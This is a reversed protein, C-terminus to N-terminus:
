RRCNTITMGSRVRAGVPRNADPISSGADPGCVLLGVFEDKTRERGGPTMVLMTMDMFRAVHPGPEDPILHEVIILRGRPAMAKRCNVIIRICQEDPWDHLIFKVFYLDAGLPVGDFFSGGVIECRDAVGARDLLPTATAIVEPLDFLVGRLGPYAKLAGAVFAGRGGGVDVLQRVGDLRYAALIAEVSAVTQEAMFTNFASAADSHSTVYEFLSQGFAADMGSIGSQLSALFHGWATWNMSSGIFVGRPRLSGQIGSVLWRSRDNLAFRDGDMEEFVGKGALYRLTRRLFDENTRSAEALQGSTRPGAALQDAIGLEAVASIAISVSFGAVLNRM